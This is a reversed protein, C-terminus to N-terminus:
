GCHENKDSPKKTVILEYIELRPNSKDIYFDEDFGKIHKINDNQLFINGRVKATQMGDFIFKKLFAWNDPDIRGDPLYWDLKLKCPWKFAINDVMAQLFVNRTYTTALRKLRAGAYRNKREADIYKNLTVQKLFTLDLIVKNLKNM